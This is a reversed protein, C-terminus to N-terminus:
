HINGIIDKQFLIIELYITYCCSYNCKKTMHGSQHRNYNSRHKDIRYKRDIKIKLRVKLIHLQISKQIYFLTIVIATTKM